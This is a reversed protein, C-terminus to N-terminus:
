LKVHTVGPGNHQFGREISGDQTELSYLHGIQIAYQKKRKGAKFTALNDGKANKLHVITGAPTDGFDIVVDIVDLPIPNGTVLILKSTGPEGMFYPWQEYPHVAADIRNAVYDELARVSLEGTDPDRVRRLGEIVIKSFAGRGPNAPPTEYAIKNREAAFGAGWVVDEPYAASPFNLPQVTSNLRIANGRCCDLFMFAQAFGTTLLGVRFDECPLLGSISGTDQFDGALFCTQPVNERVTKAQLGHGAFFVFCRGVEGNANKEDAALDAALYGTQFIESVTPPRNKKPKFRRAGNSWPTPKKSYKAVELTMNELDPPPYTWLFLNHTDVNGGDPHLAWDAFDLADGVAGRLECQAATPPYRNIGVIIAWNKM